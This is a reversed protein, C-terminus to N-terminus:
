NGRAVLNVAGVVGSGGAELSVRMVHGEAGKYCSGPNSIPAAGAATIPYRQLVTGAPSELTLWKGSDPESLFGGGFSEVEHAVGPVAAIETYVVANASGLQSQPLGM